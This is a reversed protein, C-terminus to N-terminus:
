GNERTAIGGKLGLDAQLGRMLREVEVAMFRREAAIGIDAAFEADEYESSLRSRAIEINATLEEPRIRLALELAAMAMRELVVIRARLGLIEAREESLSGHEAM